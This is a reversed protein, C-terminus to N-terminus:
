TPDSRQYKIEVGGVVFADFNTYKKNATMLNLPSILCSEAQQGPLQHHRCSQDTMCDHLCVSFSLISKLILINKGSGLIGQM